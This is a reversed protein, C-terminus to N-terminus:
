ESVVTSGEWGGNKGNSNVTMSTPDLDYVVRDSFDDSWKGDGCYYVTIDSDVRSIRKVHYPM